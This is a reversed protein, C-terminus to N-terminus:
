SVDQEQVFAGHWNHYWVQGTFSNVSLMGYPTENSLVEITYHGSFATVDGVTTGQLYSDLYQQAYTKAQEVTITPTTTVTGRAWNCWGNGFTYQSNWMMNPGPEPTVIGTYKNILLEFAGNGTSKEEVIVYFNNTYEEVEKVTLDPNNLSAVYTKAIDVAQSITLPTTSTTTPAGYVNSGGRGMCGGWGWGARYGPSVVQAPPTYLTPTQTNTQTVPALSQPSSVQNAVPAPQNLAPAQTNWGGLAFTTAITAGVSLLALIALVSVLKWTKM